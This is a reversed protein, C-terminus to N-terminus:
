RATRLMLTRYRAHRHGASGSATGSPTATQVV